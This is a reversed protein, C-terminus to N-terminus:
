TKNLFVLKTNDAKSVNKYFDVLENYTEKPFRGKWVKMKRIYTVKGADFKFSAEYEGFRSNIKIPEPLFEPYINEPLSIKITDLDLYDSQLVVDTKREETKPPVYSNKNMLNPSVFLRKGSVSAYRSLTLDLNVIASPIKDKKETMSFSNINFNPVETNREIWKRQNETNSLASNLGGNEYQIGTHTTKILAKANGTADIYIYATRSQLNDEPKYRITKVVSAGANTIMLAKRDGTFKGQYDFPNTQSTCELWLTDKGNPVATIAHNFQTSPFDINFSTGAGANILVYNATIGAEKCLAVMYNSLAKCDGYGNKDVVSAEFPQYGGIGLQIGVYRTKNQMYEYLAKVKEETTKLVSTISKVKAKTEDPLVDRGKNLSIIWQGFEQWSDMKGAYGEFEFQSPAAIIHPIIESRPPGFSELKIPKINEFTWTLTEFGSGLLKRPAAEINFLKFRPAIAPPYSLEYSAHQYSINEGGWWSSPIYYLFKYELVYEFEVTYPYISQSLDISKIRDDSFLTFGDYSAHDYVEKDKLKKVVNGQADYVAGSLNVIRTLKDYWVDHSAYDKGKENLITVVYHVYHTARNKELIKFKVHDERVVVNANEKLEAPVASIPYKPDDKATLQISFLLGTITLIRIM